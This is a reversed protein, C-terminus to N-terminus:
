RETMRKRLALCFLLGETKEKDQPDLPGKTDLFRFPGHLFFFPPFLFFLLLFFDLPLKAPPRHLPCYSPM